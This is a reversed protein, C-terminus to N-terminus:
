TRRCLLLIPRAVEIRMGNRSQRGLGNSSMTAPPLRRRCTAPDSGGAARARRATCTTIVSRRWPMRKAAQPARRQAAVGAREANNLRVVFRPIPWISSEREASRSRRRARWRRDGPALHRLTEGLGRRSGRSAVSLCRAPRGRWSHACTAADPSGACHRSAAPRRRRKRRARRRLCPRRRIRARGSPRAARRDDGRDLLRECPSVRMGSGSARARRVAPRAAADDDGGPGVKSGISGTRKM